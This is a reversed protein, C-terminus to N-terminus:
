RPRSDAPLVPQTQLDTRFPSAPLGKGNVLNGLPNDGWGYRVAVPAQVEPSFVVVHDGSIRAKAWVFRGDSGAIAFGQLEAGAIKLGGDAHTFSLGIANGAIKMKDFLPGTYAIKQGYVKGLAVDALRKGITVKDPPHINEPMENGLALAMGTAPLSLALTQAERVYPWAQTPEVPQAQLTRFNALQVWIFPVDSGWRTRWDKILLPFVRKYDLAEPMNDGNSEGQYWAIGKLSLPILPAIMGNYLSAPRAPSDPDGPPTPPKGPPKKGEVKAKEVAEQWKPVTVQDYQLRDAPYNADHKDWVAQIGPDSAKLAEFSTFSESAQGGWYSGILGIPIKLNGRLERGFFYATSSFNAMTAPTIPTWEGAVEPAPLLQPNKKVTFIRLLPDHAKPNEEAFVEPKLIGKSGWEMNSQGSMLWVDGFYVDKLTVTTKGAIEVDFPGGAKQPPLKAKWNGKADTTAMVAQGSVTLRLNEGPVAQGWINAPVERQLVMHDSFLSSLRLAVPPDPPIPLVPAASTPLPPGVGLLLAAAAVFVRPVLSRSLLDLM